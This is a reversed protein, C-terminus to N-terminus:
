NSYLLIVDIDAEGGQLMNALIPSFLPLDTLILHKSGQFHVTYAEKSNINTTQNATYASSNDLQVWVDDSYINLLPTTYAKGSPVFDNIKKNYVLKSFLSADINVVANVDDRERGLWVSAAGGM